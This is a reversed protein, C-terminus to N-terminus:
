LREQCTNMCRKKLESIVQRPVWRVFVEHFQLVDHVVHHSSCHSADSMVCEAEAVAQLMVARQARGSQTADMDNCVVNKFSGVVNM